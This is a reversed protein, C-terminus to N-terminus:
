QGGIITLYYGRALFVAIDYKEESDPWLQSVEGRSPMEKFGFEAYNEKVFDWAYTYPFRPHKCFEEYTPKSVTHKGIIGTAINKAEEINM